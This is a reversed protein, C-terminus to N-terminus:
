LNISLSNSIETTHIDGIRRRGGYLPFKLTESMAIIILLIWELYLLCRIPHKTIKPFINM